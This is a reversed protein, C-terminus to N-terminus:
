ALPPEAGKCISRLECWWMWLCEEGGGKKKREKLPASSGSNIYGREKEIKCSMWTYSQLDYKWKVKHLYVWWRKDEARKLRMQRRRTQGKGGDGEDKSCPLHGRCAALHAPIGRSFLQDSSHLVSVRVCLYVQKSVCLHLETGKLIVAGSSSVLKKATHAWM